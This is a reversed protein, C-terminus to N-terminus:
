AGTREDVPQEAMWSFAEEYLANVADPRDIGFLDPSVTEGQLGRTYALYRYSHRLGALAEPDVHLESGPVAPALASAENIATLDSIRWSGDRQEVRYILRMFSTLQAEIGDVSLCWTTTSPLEVVARRGTHHVIPPGIRNVPPISNDESKREADSVFAAASGELWSTTVTADPHFCQRLQDALRRVRCQRERVVLQSIEALESM